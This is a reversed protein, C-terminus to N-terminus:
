NFLKINGENIHIYLLHIIYLSQSNACHAMILLDGLTQTLDGMSFSPQNFWRARM